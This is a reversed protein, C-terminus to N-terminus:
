LLELTVCMMLPSRTQMAQLAKQAFANEDGALSDMIAAVSDLAFHREITARETELV